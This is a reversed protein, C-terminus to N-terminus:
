GPWFTESGALADIDAQVADDVVGDLIHLLGHLAQQIDAVLRAARHGTDADADLLAELRATRFQASSTVLQGAKGDDVLHTIVM